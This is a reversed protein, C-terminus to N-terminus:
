HIVTFRQEVKAVTAELRAILEETDTFDVRLGHQQQLNKLIAMHMKHVEIEMRAQELYRQLEIPDFFDTM